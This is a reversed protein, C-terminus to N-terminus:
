FYASFGDPGPAKLDKMKFLAEKIEEKTVPQMISEAQQQDMIRNFSFSNELQYPYETQPSTGLLEKFYSVIQEEIGDKTSAM